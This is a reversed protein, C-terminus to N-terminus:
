LFPYDALILDYSVYIFTESYKENIIKKFDLEDLYTEKGFLKNVHKHIEEQSELRNEFGQNEFKFSNTRHFPNDKLPIYSLVLKVDEKSIEGDSDSDYIQFIFHILKEYSGTFINLMGKTFETICLYADENEDFVAFIRDSM